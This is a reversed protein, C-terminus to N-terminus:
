GTRMIVQRYPKLIEEVDAPVGREFFSVSQDAAAVSTVGHRRDLAKKYAYATWIKCALRIDLPVNNNATGNTYGYGANYVISYNQWGETTFNRFKVYGLTAKLVYETNALASGSLSVSTLSNVPRHSLFFGRNGDGDLVETYNASQMELSTYTEIQKVCATILNQKLDLHTDDGAAVKEDLYATFEEPTIISAFTAM